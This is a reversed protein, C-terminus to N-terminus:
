APQTSHYCCCARGSRRYHRRIRILLLCSPAAAITLGTHLVASSPLLAYPLTIPRCCTQPVCHSHSSGVCGNRTSSRYLKCCLARCSMVLCWVGHASPQQSTFNILHVARSPRCAACCYLLTWVGWGVQLTALYSDQWFDVATMAVGDESVGV